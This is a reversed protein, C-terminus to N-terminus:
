LQAPNDSHVRKPLMRLEAKIAEKDNKDAAFRSVSLMIGLAISTVLISTGGKSILPLPQGSVPSVGTVIVMHFLAQYVIYIACGIVLLAPFTQNFRTAIRAARGLLVMYLTLVLLGGVLGGEEVVIAFIYDSFALPLRANERSNGPGVGTLGGRAQAIFSLQAQKNKSTITDEYKNLRFHGDSRSRWTDTRNGAGTAAEEHNLTAIQAARESVKEDSGSSKVMYAAGGVAAYFLLVVGMKRLSVGGILMMSLSISVLLLTNTLGQFFLLSCCITILAVCYIVGRDSVDNTNKLQHRSLIWAVGLAASLKLFEAPLIVTGPIALGRRVGNIKVGNVMVYAMAAMSVVVLIPTLNYVKRYHVRQIGVMALFGLFLFGAHRIIPGYINGPTVEQSSASYLEVLSVLVLFIYTGWIYQDKRRRVARVNGATKATKAAPACDRTVEDVLRRDAASDAADAMARRTLTDLTPDLQPM